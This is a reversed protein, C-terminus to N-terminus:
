GEHQNVVGITRRLPIERQLPGPEFGILAAPSHLVRHVTRDGEAPSALATECHTYLSAVPMKTTKEWPFGSRAIRILGCYNRFQKLRWRRSRWGRPNWRRM